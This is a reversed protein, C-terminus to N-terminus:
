RDSEKRLSRGITRVIAGFEQEFAGKRQLALGHVGVRAGEGEPTVRVWVRRRSSYLAPLLGVLLLVAAILALHQGPDAGIQFVTYQKLDTFEVVIGDPLKVTQGLTMAGVEGPALGSKQLFYISQPVTLGLDGRFEQFFVVPRNPMPSRNRPVNNEDVVLDPFFNMELGMQPKAQPIKVVGRWGGGDPLFVVPADAMPKGDKSVKIRPAWGWALQFISIGKHVLPNNVRIDTDKIVRGNEVLKVRSVFEKALGNPRFTVTFDDVQLTFDRHREDFLSGERISDYAVHTETFADGEVIAVQGVFGYAKGVGVGLLLLLVASHFMLSGTERWRGREGAVVGGNNDRADDGRATRFRKARLAREAAELAPGPALDTIGEFTHAGKVGPRPPTRVVRWFARYRPVLCGVLSVLLLAYIAMFWPAGYVDFFGIREFFAGLGPRLQKWRFVALENVPRQPIFSGISAAAALVFLLIIATRM